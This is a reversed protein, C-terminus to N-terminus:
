APQPYRQPEDAFIDNPSSLCGEALADGWRRLLADDPSLRALWGPDVAYIRRGRQECCHSSAATRGHLPLLKIQVDAGSMAMVFRSLLNFGRAVFLAHLTIRILDKRATMLPQVQFIVIACLERAQQCDGARALRVADSLTARVGEEIDDERGLRRADGCDTGTPAQRRYKAM